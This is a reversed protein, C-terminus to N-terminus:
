NLRCSIESKVGYKTDGSTINGNMSECKKRADAKIMKGAKVDDTIPNDTIAVGNTYTTNVTTCECTYDKKCSTGAFVAVAAVLLLNKM